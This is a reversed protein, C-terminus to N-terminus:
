VLAASVARISEAVQERTIRYTAREGALVHGGVCYSTVAAEFMSIDNADNGFAVFDTEPGWLHAIGSAKTVGAATLDLIPEGSHETIEVDM